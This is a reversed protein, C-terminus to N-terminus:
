QFRKLVNWFTRFLTKFNNWFTWFAKNSGSGYFSTNFCSQFDTLRVLCSKVLTFSEMKQHWHVMGTLEINALIELLMLSEWVILSKCGNTWYRNLRSSSLFTKNCCISFLYLVLEFIFSLVVLLSLSHVRSAAMQLVYKLM